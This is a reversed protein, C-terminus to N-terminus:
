QQRELLMWYLGYPDDNEHSEAIPPEHWPPSVRIKGNHAPAFAARGVGEEYQKPEADGFQITLATLNIFYNTLDISGAGSIVEAYDDRAKTVTFTGDAAITVSWTTGDFVNSWTGVLNTPLPAAVRTLRFFVPSPGTDTWREVYLISHADDGWHYRKEVSGSGREDYHYHFNQTLTTDTSSWGGQHRWDDVQDGDTDFLAWAEIYRDGVFTLLMSETRTEGDEVFTTSWAWTGVIGPPEVPTPEPEPKSMAAQCGSLAFVALVVGATLVSIARM